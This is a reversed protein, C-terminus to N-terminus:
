VETTKTLNKLIGAIERMSFPKKFYFVIGQASAKEILEENKRHSMLLFPIRSLKSDARLTRRLEFGNTKPVMIESVIIDPVIEGIIHMAEDGDAAQLATYGLQEIEDALMDSFTTDPEIILVNRLLAGMQIDTPSTDCITNSGSKRATQLRFQGIQEWSSFIERASKEGTELESLHVVAISVSLQELFRDSDNIHKRLKEATESCGQRCEPIYYALTPGEYKFLRQGEQAHEQPLAAAEAAIVRLADDGGKRGYRANLENIDDLSIFLLASDGPSSRKRNIEGTMFIAFYRENKLGTLPCTFEEDTDEQEPFETEVEPFIPAEEVVAPTNSRAMLEALMEPMELGYEGSLKLVLPEIVMLWEGSGKSEIAEFFGQWSAADQIRGAAKSSLESVESEGFVSQLREIVAAAARSYLNGKETTSAERRILMGCEVEALHDLYGQIDSAIVSGHQPAIIRIDLNRIRSLASRIISRAPMYHEHFTRMAAPYRGDAYLNESHGIAGFLDGSFLVKSQEDYTMIAGAFHLYPAPYFRLTRGSALTLQWGRENVLYYPLSIGFYQVILSTRWHLVIQASVGAEEFVPIASCLDADQHHAILYTIKEIPVLATVKNLVHHFDLVSGPDILVAEDGDLLLYPNCELGRNKKDSGVWYVDDAIEVPIHSKKINM